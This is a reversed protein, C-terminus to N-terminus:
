KWEGQLVFGAWYYAAGWQKEKLMSVQAARLAAAPRLGDKLMKQYFRQMLEATAKDSVKWLSAVIRPVGAYMFGRTLGVLGEGKIEKGLATQCASLVVLDAELKLNYVEYLRLFGDQAQGQEDVLSLVIGSLEPHQNNLLSHTAFHVMQYQSLEPNIAAARSATFDLAKLPQGNPTLATILEAERRSLVLRDFSNLGLEKSSREVDSSLVAKDNKKETGSGEDGLQSKIKLKVRQDDKEFVPDALVAVTKPAPKRASLERRLVALVSASPLSLIEHGAILPQYKNATVNKGTAPPQRSFVPDPLAGFPVYQLAGESVILLRKRGLQGAVPQLLMQSLTTLAEPYLADAKAVLLEYVRRAAAEIEARKALEFSTISTPTVAWLYSREEGLAYELLLTDDDLVQQQIQKLSLPQPQTLAAYRPSKARIQAEVEQYMGLLAEMEKRVATEQEQTHKASLLRAFQGSKVSLQQQLDRERELLVPDVGQRIDARAETLIELLSRARARESAQLAAADYGASPQQRHLQMLLDIYFKYYDQRAALWSTRLEQSALKARIPEIANLAAEIQTRAESLNGLARQARAINNLIKAEGNRDGVSRSLQLAQNHYDLAKQPEGLLLYSLGISTLTFSEGYRDEIIRRLSLAQNFYDLAKLQEGSLAHAEGISSLAYAEGSRDSVAQFLTLAQSFFDLARRQEGLSSYAKGLNHLTQAEGQRDGADRRLPLAQGYYELAKQAEGLESYVVGINSLTLGEGRRNKALRWLPLAQGYYELAKQMEGLRRSVEGINSLTSAEGQSDGVTRRLPLSQGYFELARQLEGLNHYILGINNLTSAEGKSDGTIRRLPLAQDYFELARQLESLRWYVVGINNLSMAENLRDGVMRWLTVAQSYHELAKKPDGLSSNVFGLENLTYAERKKNGGAQWLPLAEEYRKIAKRRAEATQQDRLQNGETFIKEAAVQSQDKSTAERLEEVWIKYRGPKAIKNSSRVELRYNGAAGAISFVSEEGVAPDNDVEVMQQGDTGFFKILVDIGKQEAVVKLYQGAALAIRYAHAEGGALEREIVQGQKLERIEAQGTGNSTTQLVVPPTSGPEFRSGSYAAAAPSVWLLLCVIGTLRAAEVASSNSKSLGPMLLSM